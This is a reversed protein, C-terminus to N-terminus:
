KAIFMDQKYIVNLFLDGLAEWERQSSKLDKGNDRFDPGIEKCKLRFFRSHLLTHSAQCSYSNSHKSIMVFSRVCAFTSKESM